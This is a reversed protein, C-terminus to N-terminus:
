GSKGRDGQASAPRVLRSEDANEERAELAAQVDDLRVYIEGGISYSRMGEIEAKTLKKM